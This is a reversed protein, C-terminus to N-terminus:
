PGDVTVRVASKAFLEVVDAAFREPTLDNGPRNGLDRALRVLEDVRQARGLLADLDAESEGALPVVHVGDVKTAEDPRSRFRDFRYDALALEALAVARAEAPDVDRPAFPLAVAIQYERNKGAQELVRRLLKRLANVAFGDAKGIGFCAIRRFGKVPSATVLVEGEHGHVGLEEITKAIAKHEAKDLALGDFPTVSEATALYLCDLGEDPTSRYQVLDAMVVGTFVRGSRACPRIRGCRRPPPSSTCPRRRTSASWGCWSAADGGRRAPTPQGGRRHRPVRRGEPLRLDGDLDGAAGGVRLRPEEARQLASRVAARLKAEEDGEGWVPGVAHIVARCPLRGAGTVAAGGVEVPAVADSERQIVEGGRRVIAGAVGGGHILSTNAANVIADVAQATLDGVVVEVAGRGCPKVLVVREDM